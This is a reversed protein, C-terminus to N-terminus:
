SRVSARAPASRLLQLRLHPALLRRRVQWARVLLGSFLLLAHMSLHNCSAGHPAAAPATGFPSSPAGLPAGLPAAFASAPASAAAGSASAPAAAPAVFSPTTAVALPASATSAPLVSATPAGFLGASPTPSFPSAAPVTTAPITSNGAAPKSSAEPTPTTSALGSQTVAPALSTNSAQPQSPGFLLEAGGTTPKQRAYWKLRQEDPSDKSDVLASESPKLGSSAAPQRASLRSSLTLSPKASAETGQSRNPVSEAASLLALKEPSEQAPNPTAGAILPQKPQSMADATKPFSLASLLGAPESSTAFLSGAVAPAAAPLSAATSVFGFAPSTSGGAPLSSLSNAACAAFPTEGSSILGPAASPAKTQEISVAPAFLPPASGGEFTPDTPKGGALEAFVSRRGEVSPLVAAVPASMQTADEIARVAVAEDDYTDRRRLRDRLRMLCPAEHNTRATSGQSSDNQFGQVQEGSVPPILSASSHARVHLAGAADRLAAVRLEHRRVIDAQREVKETLASWHETELSGFRRELRLLGQELQDETVQLRDLENLLLPAVALDSVLPGPGPEHHQLLKVSPQLVAHQQAELQQLKTHVGEKKSQLEDLADECCQLAPAVQAAEQSIDCQQLKTACQKLLEELEAVRQLRSDFLRTFAGGLEPGAVGSWNSVDVLIGQLDAGLLVGPKLSTASTEPRSARYSAKGSTLGQGELPPHRPSSLVAVQSLAPEAAEAQSQAQKNKAATAGFLGGSTAAPAPAAGFLGGSAAAPAPAAGFLGGSTAAPAPAAGFLGGSAAAPAPAAGFLGGSAAAPAPAAGFLGGSAAAPAAAPAPAAGFLGGGSAAAPGPADLLQLVKAFRPKSEADAKAMKKSTAERATNGKGTQLTPDAGAALLLQVCDDWGESAAYILPTVGAKTKANLPAGAATLAEIDDARGCKAAWHLATNTKEDVADLQAGDELAKMLADHDGMEAAGLLDKDATASVAAGSTTPAAPAAPASSAATPQKFATAAAPSPAATLAPLPENTRMFAYKGADSKAKKHIATWAVISNHSTLCWLVPSPPFQEEGAVLTLQEQNVLDLALGMVYQDEFLDDREFTPISPPGEEDPLNWRQWLQNAGAKRSGLCCVEDSDSSCVVAMRWEPLVHCFFRTRPVHETTEYDRGPICCSGCEHLTGGDLDLVSFFPFPDAAHVVLLFRENLPWVFNAEAGPQVDKPLAMPPVAQSEGGIGVKRLQGTQCGCFIASGDLSWCASCLADTGPAMRPCEAFPASEIV